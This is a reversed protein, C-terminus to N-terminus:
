VLKQRTQAKAYAEYAQRVESRNSTEPVAVEGAGGCCGGRDISHSVWVWGSSTRPSM